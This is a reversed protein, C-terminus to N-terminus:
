EISPEHPPIELLVIKNRQQTGDVKVQVLEQAIAANILDLMTQTKARLTQEPTNDIGAISPSLVIYRFGETRLTDVIGPVSFQTRRALCTFLDLQDDNYVRLDNREVFYPIFTGMRFVSNAFEQTPPHVNIEHAVEEYRPYTEAIFDSATGYGGWYAYTAPSTLLNLRLFFLSLISVLILVVSFRKTPADVTDLHMGLLVTLGIIGPLGYWIVGRGLFIWMIWFALSFVGISAYLKNKRIPFLLVFPILFALYVFSIHSSVFNVLTGMTVQWPLLVYKSIGRNDYGWYRGLEEEGGTPQAPLVEDPTITQTTSVAGPPAESTEPLADFDCYPTPGVASGRQITFQNIEGGADITHKVGWPVFPIMAFVGFLVLTSVAPRISTRTRILHALLTVGVAVVFILATYKATFCFGALVASLILWSRPSPTTNERRAVTYEVFAFLSMAAFFILPPDVKVEWSSQYFVVPNIFYLIALLLATSSRIFKRSLAYVALFGLIGLGAAIWQTVPVSRMIITGLSMILEIPYANIGTLLSNSQALLQPTNIYRYVADWGTPVPQLLDATNVAILFLTLIWLWTTLAFPKWHIVVRHRSYFNWVSRAHRRLLVLLSGCVLVIVGSTLLSLSGLLFLVYSLGIMGLAVTVLWRSLSRDSSIGLRHLLATGVTASFFFLFAWTIVVSGFVRVIRFLASLWAISLGNQIVHVALFAHLTVLIFLSVLAFIVLPTLSWTFTTRQMRRQNLVYVLYLGTMIYLAIAKPAAAMFLLGQLVVGLYFIFGEGSWYSSCSALTDGPCGLHLPHHIYYSIVVFLVWGILLIRKGIDARSPM